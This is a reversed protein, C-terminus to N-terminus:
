ARLYMHELISCYTTESLLVVNKKDKRTAIITEHNKAEKDLCKNLNKKIELESLTTM